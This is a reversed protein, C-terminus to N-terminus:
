TAPRSPRREELVLRAAGDFAIVARGEVLARMPEALMDARWGHALRSDPDGRLYSAVDGRTALLAAEIGEDRALQAVWAMILSVAPRLEKSVEEAHPLEVEGSPLTKGVEIAALLETAVDSRLRRGDLGRVHALAEQNKPPHHAIAQVALDPLIGRVPQDLAQARRERWAAVEQAVGRASGRLQRADRL